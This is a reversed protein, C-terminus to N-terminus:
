LHYHAREGGIFKPRTRAMTLHAQGIEQVSGRFPVVVAKLHMGIFTDGIDLGVHGQIREVLVPRQMTKMALHALSGGAGLVPYASVQELDYKELCDEEVVLARNLHECCQVALYLGKKKVMPYLGDMIAQAIELSSHTGIKEGAVESTSCGVVLIQGSKLQAAELLEETAKTVYKTIETSNM